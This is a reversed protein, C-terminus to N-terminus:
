NGRSCPAIHKQVIKPLAAGEQQADIKRASEDRPVGGPRHHARVTLRHCEKATTGSRVEVHIRQRRFGEPPRRGILQHRRDAHTAVATPHREEADRGSAGGFSADMPAVLIGAGVGHNGADGIGGHKKRLRSGFHHDGAAAFHFSLFGDVQDTGGAAIAQEHLGVYRLGSFNMRQRMSPWFIHLVSVAESFSM